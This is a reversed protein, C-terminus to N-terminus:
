PDHVPPTFVKPCDWGAARSEADFCAGWHYSDGAANVVEGGHYRPQFVLACVEVVFNWPPNHCESLGTQSHTEYIRTEGQLVAYGFSSNNVLINVSINGSYASVHQFAHTM